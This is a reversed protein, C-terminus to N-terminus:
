AKKAAAKAKRAAAKEAKEKEALEAKEIAIKKLLESTPEDSSDQEVLKGSFAKKLISQRLIESKKINIDIEELQTDVISLKEELLSIILKQEEISPIPVYLGLLKPQTINLGSDSIGTKLEEIQRSFDTSNCLMEIFQPSIYEKPFRIRYAKDCLMLKQATEKVRCVIGVRNRPGARTILIDDKEINLWKRPLLSSPLLKNEEPVFKRNQIASTKIVGWDEATSPVNECRPSWGQGLSLVTDKLQLSGWEHPISSPKKGESEKTVTPLKRPKSPKKGEQGSEEWEKVASEWLKVQNLFEHERKNKIHKIVIENSVKEFGERKRWHETLKGEFAHKLLAQRYITLQIKATKLSEIGKDLESFLEEIKEVIRAQENLPPLWFELPKLDKVGAINMMASGKTEVLVRRQFQESRFLYLFYKPDMVKDCIRIRLLAQNIVGKSFNSPIRTIRGITGSCSVLFDGAQVAFSNLEKYKEDDIFYRGLSPDDYIANQQEYVKYGSPVFFEKKIASGFPGRKFSDVVDQFQCEAWGLPLDIEQKM